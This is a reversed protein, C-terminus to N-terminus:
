WKSPEPSFCLGWIYLSLSNLRVNVFICLFASCYTSLFLLHFRVLVESSGQESLSFSPSELSFHSPKGSFTFSQASILTPSSNLHTNQTVPVSAPSHELYLSNYTCFGWLLFPCKLACYSHAHVRFDSHLSKFGATSSVWRTVWPLIIKGM